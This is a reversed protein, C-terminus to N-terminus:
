NFDVSVTNRRDIFISSKRGEHSQIGLGWIYGLDSSKEYQYVIVDPMNRPDLVSGLRMTLATSCALLFHVRKVGKLSLQRLLKKFEDCIATCSAEDVVVQFLDEKPEWIVVDHNPFAKSVDEATIPYTIGSRIVVDSTQISDLAPISWTPVSKGDKSWLWQGGNREWEAWSVPRDDELVNGLMFLFPVPAFGGACVAIDNLDRGGAHQLLSRKIHMVEDAVDQIGHGGALADRKQLLIQIRKGKIETPVAATLLAPIVENYADFQVCLVVKRSSEADEKKNQRYACYILWLTGSVILIMALAFYASEWVSPTSQTSATAEVQLWSLNLGIKAAYSASLLLAFISLGATIAASGPNRVFRTKIYLRFVDATTDILKYFTAKM